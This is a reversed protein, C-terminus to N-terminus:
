IRDTKLKRFVPSIVERNIVLNSATTPAIGRVYKIAAARRQKPRMKPQLPLWSYLESRLWDIRLLKRRRGRRKKLSTSDGAELHHVCKNVPKLEPASTEVLSSPQLRHHQTLTPVGLEPSGTTLSAARLTPKKGAKKAM